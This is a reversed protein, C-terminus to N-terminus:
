QSLVDPVIIFILYMYIYIQIYTYIKGELSRFKCCGSLAPTGVTKIACAIEAFNPRCAPLMLDFVVFLFHTLMSLLILKVTPCAM